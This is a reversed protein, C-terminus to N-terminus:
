PRCRGGPVRRQTLRRSRPSLSVTPMTRQVDEFVEAAEYAENVPGPKYVNTRVHLQIDRRLGNVFTTWIALEDPTYPKEQQSLQQMLVVM